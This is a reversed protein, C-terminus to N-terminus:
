AWGSVERRWGHAYIGWFGRKFVLLKVGRGQGWLGTDTQKPAERHGDGLGPESFPLLTQGLRSELDMSPPSHPPAKPPPLAPLAPTHFQHNQLPAKPAFLANKPWKHGQTSSSLTLSPLQSAPHVTDTHVAPLVITQGVPCASIGRDTQSHLWGHIGGYFQRHTWSSMDRHRDTWGDEHENRGGDVWGNGTSCGLWGCGQAHIQSSLAAQGSDELGGLSPLLPTSLHVCPHHCLHACPHVSEHGPTWSSTFSHGGWFHGTWTDRGSDLWGHLKGHTWSSM